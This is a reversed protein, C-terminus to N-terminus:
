GFPQGAPARTAALRVLTEGVAEYSEGRLFLRAWLELSLLQFAAFSDSQVLQMVGTTTATSWQFLDRAAGDRLLDVATVFPEYPVHFGLKPAYVVDRPLHRSAVSKLLWKGHGDRYKALRKRRM